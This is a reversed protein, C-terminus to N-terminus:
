GVFLELCQVLDRVVAGWRRDKTRLPAWWKLGVLLVVLGNAGAKKLSAMDMKMRDDLDAPLERGEVKRCAPQMARWWAIWRNAYDLLNEVIPDSDWKRSSVWKSLKVPRLGSETLRSNRNLATKELDAWLTVCRIWAMDDIGRSLYGEALLVWDDVERTGGRRSRKERGVGLGSNVVETEVEENRRKKGRVDV